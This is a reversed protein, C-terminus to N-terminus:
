MPYIFIYANLVVYRLYKNTVQMKAQSAANNKYVDKQVEVKATNDSNDM